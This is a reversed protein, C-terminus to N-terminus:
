SHKAQQFAVNSPSGSVTLLSCLHCGIMGAKYKGLKSISKIVAMCVDDCKASTGLQVHICIHHLLLLPMGQVGMLCMFTMCLSYLRYRQLDFTVPWNDGSCRHHIIYEISGSEQLDIRWLGQLRGTPALRFHVFTALQKPELYFGKLWDGDQSIEPFTFSVEVIQGAFVKHPYPPHEVAVKHSHSRAKEHRKEWDLPYTPQLNAQSALLALLKQFNQFTSSLRRGSVEHEIGISIALQWAVHLPVHWQNINLEGQHLLALQM